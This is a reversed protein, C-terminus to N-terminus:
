RKSSYYIDNWKLQNKFDRESTSDDIVVLEIDAMEAFDEFYEISFM